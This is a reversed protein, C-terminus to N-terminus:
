RRAALMSGDELGIRGHCHGERVSGGVQHASGVGGAGAHLLVEGSLLKARRHLGFWATQFILTFGAGDEFSMTDPMRQVSAPAADSIEAYGGRTLGGSDLLATVRDGPKFDASRPASEVVGSVEAGPVFPLEPKVQYTGAVM